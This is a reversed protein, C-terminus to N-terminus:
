KRGGREGPRRARVLHERVRRLPLKEELAAEAQAVAEDHHLVHVVPRGLQRGGGQPGGHLEDQRVLRLEARVGQVLVHVGHFSRDLRADLVAQPIAKQAM